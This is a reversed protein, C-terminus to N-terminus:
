AVASEDEVSGSHTEARRAEIAQALRECTRCVKSGSIEYIMGTKQKGCLTRGNAIRGMGFVQVAVDISRFYHHYSNGPAFWGVSRVIIERPLYTHPSCKDSRMQLGALWQSLTSDEDCITDDM